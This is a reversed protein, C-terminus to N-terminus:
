GDQDVKMVDIFGEGDGDSAGDAASPGTGLM